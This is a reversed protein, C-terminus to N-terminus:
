NLFVRNFITELARWGSTDNLVLRLFGDLFSSKEGSKKDIMTAFRLSMDIETQVEFDDNCFVVHKNVPVAYGCAALGARLAHFLIEHASYSLGIVATGDENMLLCSLIDVANVGYKKLKNTFDQRCDNVAALNGDAMKQKLQAVFGHLDLEAIIRDILKELTIENIIFGPFAAILQDVIEHRCSLLFSDETKQVGLDDAYHNLVALVYHVEMGPTDMLGNRQMMDKVLQQAMQRRFHLFERPLYLAAQLATYTDIIYSCAGVGCVAIDEILNKVSSRRVEISIREDRILKCIGSLYRMGNQLLEIEARAWDLDNEKKPVLHDQIFNLIIERYDQRDTQLFDFLECLLKECAVRHKIGSESHQFAFIDAASAPVPFDVILDDEGSIEAHNTDFFAPTFGNVFELKGRFM